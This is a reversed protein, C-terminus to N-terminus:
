SARLLGALINNFEDTSLPRIEAIRINEEVHEPTKHGVLPIAPSSRAFQLCRLAKSEIGDIAPIMSSKLLRSQMLPVSTFVNIGLISSAEFVTCMSSNISQNRLTAAEHMILNFPLQIFRFGHENNKHRVSAEKAMDILDKLNVHEISNPMVRFCTWTAMGYYRIVGESRKQEYFEFAEKLMRMVEDKGIDHINSEVVNHLYMLDICELGLNKISRNLQDELYSVKMCNYDSSIDNATIVGKKILHEHIYEWFDTALDADHTLYGNKTSIFIEDRSIIKEEILERVARGVSREAKQFRYNIATDIVNVAGSAVSRKIANVVLRDTTADANGLYTGMGISTLSLGQFEKFHGVATSKGEHRVRFRLTGDRTAYGQIM